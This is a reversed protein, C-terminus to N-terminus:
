HVALLVNMSVATSTDTPTRSASINSVDKFEFTATPTAPFFFPIVNAAIFSQVFTVQPAVLFFCFPTTQEASFTALANGKTLAMVVFFKQIQFGSDCTTLDVARVDYFITLPGSVKTGSANPNVPIGLAGPTPVETGAWLTSTTLSIVAGVLVVGLASTIFRM